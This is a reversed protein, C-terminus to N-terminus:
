GNIRRSFTAKLLGGLFRFFEEVLDLAEPLLVFVAYAVVVLALMAGVRAIVGHAIFFSEDPSGGFWQGFYAAVVFMNRVLNLLYIVPVSVLFAKLKRSLPADVAFVLGVFLVISQIATCPLIIQIPNYLERFSASSSYIYSPPVFFVGVGGSVLNLLVTTLKATAFILADGLLSIESFPFYCVATLLAMKTIRFLLEEGEKEGAKVLPKALLVALLLSFGLFVFDVGADFYEAQALYEAAELWCYFAVVTWGFAGAARGLLRNSSRLLLALLFLWIAVFPLVSKFLM